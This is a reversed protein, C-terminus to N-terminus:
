ILVRDITIVYVQKKTNRLGKIVLSSPPKIFLCKM